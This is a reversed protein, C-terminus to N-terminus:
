IGEKKIFKGIHDIAEQGESAKSAFFHWCHVMEPWEELTVSVKQEKAKKALAVAEDRLIEVAGVQIFLPPLGYFNGFLPSIFPNTVDQDQAYDRVSSTLRDLRVWDSDKNREISDCHFTLDVMPCICVVASPQPQYEEKLKLCLSLALGGGASIGMCIIDSASYGHNLLWQYIKFIDELAAPFPHEPALRYNVGLVARNTTRSIRGMLDRHSNVSGANFGGGHFFLIIKERSVMPALVWCTSISDICLSEYQIDPEPPFATFLKEFGERMKEISLHTTSPRNKLQELIQLYEKSAM